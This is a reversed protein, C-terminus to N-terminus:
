CIRNCIRASCFDIARSIDSGLMPRRYNFAEERSIQDADAHKADFNHLKTWDLGDGASPITDVEGKRGKGERKKRQEFENRQNM